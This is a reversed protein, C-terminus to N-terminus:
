SAIWLGPTISQIAERLGDDPARERSGNARLSPRSNSQSGILRNTSLNTCGRYILDGASTSLLAVQLVRHKCAADARGPGKRDDQDHMEGHAHQPLDQDVGEM